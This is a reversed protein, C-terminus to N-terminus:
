RKGDPLVGSSKRLIDSSLEYIRLLSDKVPNSITDLPAIQVSPDDVEGSVKMSVVILRKDKGTLVWGLLPIMGIARDITEFPQVGIVADIENTRLSYEGVASLQISNSNLYFDDFSMVNDRITFTSTIVNYPFNKSTIEIDHSQIIKYINMLAFIRSFLAYKRIKGDKATLVMTGNVSDPSGWLHGQLDMSGRIWAKDTSLPDLFQSISANDLSVVIDFTSTGTLSVTSTGQATGSMGKLEMDSLTLTGNKLRASATASDLAIGYLNANTLEVHADADIATLFERNQETAPAPLRLGGISLGGTFLPRKGLTLTGQTIRITVEDSAIDLQESTLLKNRLSVPGTVTLPSGDAYLVANRSLVSGSFSLDDGWGITFDGALSGSLPLEGAPGAANIQKLDLSGKIRMSGGSQSIKGSIALPSSPLNPVLSHIVLSLEPWLTGSLTAKAQFPKKRPTYSTDFLTIKDTRISAAASINPGSGTGELTIRTAKGLAFSDDQFLTDTTLSFSSKMEGFPDTLTCTFQEITSEDVSGSLSIELPSDFDKKSVTGSQDRIVTTGWSCGLSTLSIDGLAQLPKGSTSDWYTNVQGAITGGTVNSVPSLLAYEPDSVMAARWAQVFDQASMAARVDVSIRSGPLALEHFTLNVTEIESEGMMGSLGIFAIDGAGYVVEGTIDTIREEGRGAGFSQGILEETIRANTLFTDPDPLDTILGDYHISSFRSTGGRIQSTLLTDLWPYFTHTPLMEVIQEYDFESSQMDLTLRADKKDSLQIIQGSGTIEALPTTVALDELALLDRDGRTRAHLSCTQITGSGWPLSLGEINLVLSTDIKEGTLDFSVDLVCIGRITDRLLSLDIRDSSITGTWGEHFHAQIRITGGLQSSRIDVEEKGILADIKEILIDGGRHQLRISGDTIIILPWDLRNGPGQLRNLLETNLIAAPESCTLRTLHIKGLLLQWPSFRATVERIDVSGEAPSGIHVRMLKVGPRPFFELGASGVSVATGAAQAIKEQAVRQLQDPAMRIRAYFVSFIMVLILATLLLAISIKKFLHKM